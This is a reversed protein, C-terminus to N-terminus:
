CVLWAVVTIMKLGFFSIMSAASTVEKIASGTSDMEDNISPEFTVIETESPQDSDKVTPFPTGVPTPFPTLQRLTPRSSPGGTYDRLPSSSPITTSPRNSQKLTPFASRQVSPSLSLVETPVASPSESTMEGIRLLSVYGNTTVFALYRDDVIVFDARVYGGTEHRWKEAGSRTDICVLCGESEIYYALEDNFATQVKAEVLSMATTINWLQTATSQFPHAKNETLKYAYIFPVGSPGSFIHLTDNFALAGSNPAPM